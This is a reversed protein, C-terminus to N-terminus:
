CGEPASALVITRAMVKAGVALAQEDVDFTPTHLQAARSPDTATGLRFMAGPVHELYNAFDESGMSPRDIHQLGEGGLLDEAAQEIRETLSPDNCVSRVSAEFRVEIKTRSMEEIGRTLQRIHEITRQRVGRDLTRLTGCLEVQEPIVNPNDGGRVQGFTVVVADQSDTARPVFLYLTSILQSAAAIPDNSEHPRAAHGGRGRVTLRMADCNATLVGPRIAVVGVRRTPDVHTAFVARIGNLCGADIMDRAGLATEEAPQFIGRVDVPWPLQRSEALDRLVILTGYVIAAHADHGCAHMVGARRSRYGVHKRDQIRLADLDARIAVRPTGSGFPADAIVGRGEPGMQVTFGQDSLRQYLHLSTELEEGSPEPHMHFYRRLAVLEEFRDDVGRDISESWDTSM